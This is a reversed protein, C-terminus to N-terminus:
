DFFDDEENEEEIEIRKITNKGANIANNLCSDIPEKSLLLNLVLMSNMGSVLYINNQTLFSMLLTNVSGGPFDSVLVIEDKKDSNFLIKEIREKLVTPSEGEKMCFAYLNNQKGSIMEVSNKIGEALSGHSALVFKRM